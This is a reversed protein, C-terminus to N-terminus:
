GRADGAVITYHRVTDDFSQLMGRAEDAVVAIAIDPGAFARIAEESTWLSTVVLEIAEGAARQMLTAGRCGEIGALASVVHAEFHRAYRTAGDPTATASWVRAIM